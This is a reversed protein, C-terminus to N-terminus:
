EGKQDAVIVRFTEPGSAEMAFVTKRIRSLKLERAKDAEIRLLEEELEPPCFHALVKGAPNLGARKALIEDAERLPGRNWILYLRTDESGPATRSHPKPNSLKSLYTVQQSGGIVGLEMQFHDLQRAYTEITTGPPFQFEWRAHNPLDLTASDSASGGRVIAEPPAATEGVGPITKGQLRQGVVTLIALPDGAPASSATAPVDTAVVFAPL